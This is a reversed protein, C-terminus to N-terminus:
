YVTCSRHKVQNHQLLNVDVSIKGTYKLSVSGQTKLCSFTRRTITTRIVHSMGMAAMLFGIQNIMHSAIGCMRAKVQSMNREDPCRGCILKSHNLRIVSILHSIFISLLKGDEDWAGEIQYSASAVGFLLDEPFKSNKNAAVAMILCGYIICQSLLLMSNLRIFDATIRVPGAFHLTSPLTSKATQKCCSSM